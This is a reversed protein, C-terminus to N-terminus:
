SDPTLTLNRYVQKIPFSLNISKLEIVDGEKAQKLKLPAEL